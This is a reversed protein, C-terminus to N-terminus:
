MHEFPDILESVARQTANRAAQQVSPDPDSLLRAIAAHDEKDGIRSLAHVAALRVMARRDRLAAVVQPKAASAATGLGGVAALVEPIVSEHLLERMELLRLLEPLAVTAEGQFRRLASVSASLVWQETASEDPGPEFARLLQRLVPLAIDAPLTTLTMGMLAGQRVKQDDTRLGDALAAPVWVLHACLESRDEVPNIRQLDCPHTATEIGCQNENHVRGAETLAEARVASMSSQSLLALEHLREECGVLRERCRTAHVDSPLAHLAHHLGCANHVQDLLARQGPEDDPIAPVEEVARVVSAPPPEPASRTTPEAVSVAPAPPLPAACGALWALWLGRAATTM